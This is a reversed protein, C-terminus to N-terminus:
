QKKGCFKCFTSDADIKVGCHKCFITEGMLGNKVAKTTIEISEKTADAMNTSISEIDDKSEEVAYKQAKIQSSMIKGRFKPSFFMLLTFTIGGCMVVGAFSMCIYYMVM